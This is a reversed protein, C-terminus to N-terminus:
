LLVAFISPLVSSGSVEQILDQWFEDPGEQSTNGVSVAPVREPLTTRSASMNQVLSELRRVRVRLEENTEETTRTEVDGPSPAPTPLAANRVRTAHRGRALRLRHVPVCAVGARRCNSCPQQKDCKVKRDRCLECSLQTPARATTQSTPSM